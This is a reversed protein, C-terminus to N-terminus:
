EMGKRFGIRYATNIIEIMLEELANISQLNKETSGGESSNLLQFAGFKAQSELIKKSNTSTVGKRRLMM